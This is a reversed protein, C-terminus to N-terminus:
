RTDADCVVAVSQYGDARFSHRYLRVVMGIAVRCLLGVLCLFNYDSNLFLAIHAFLESSIASAIPLSFCSQGGAQPGQSFSLKHLLCFSM